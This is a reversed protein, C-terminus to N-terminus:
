PTQDISDSMSVIVADNTSVSNHGVVFSVPVTMQRNESGQPNSNIKGYFTIKINGDTGVAISTIISYLRATGANYDSLIDVITGTTNANYWHTVDASQGLKPWNLFFSKPTGDSDKDIPEAGNDMKISFKQWEMASADNYKYTFDWANYYSTGPDVWTGTFNSGLAHKKGLIVLNRIRMLNDQGKGSKDLELTMEKVICSTIKIHKSAVPPKYAMTFFYGADNDFDPQSTNYKFVKAFATAAGESVKNQMLSYLLDALRDKTVILEPVTVTIPGSYNDTHIDALDLQRASRNLDLDSNVIPIDIKTGKPFKIRKFLGSDAIATGWTTEVLYGFEDQEDSFVSFAM